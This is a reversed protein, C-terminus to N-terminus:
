RIWESPVPEEKSCRSRSEAPMKASAARDRADRPDDIQAPDDGALLRRDGCRRERPSTPSMRSPLPTGVAASCAATIM